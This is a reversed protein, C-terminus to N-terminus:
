DFHGASKNFLRKIGPAVYGTYQMDQAIGLLADLRAHPDRIAETIQIAKLYQKDHIYYDAVKLYVRSLSDAQCLAKVAPFVEEQQGNKIGQIMIRALADEKLYANDIERSIEFAAKLDKLKAYSIAIYALAQSRDFPLKIAEATALAIKYNGERAYSIAIQAQAESRFFVTKVADATDRAKQYDGIKAYGIAAQTLVENKFYGPKKGKASIVARDFMERAPDPLDLSLYKKGTSLFMKADKAPYKLLLSDWLSDWKANDAVANIEYFYVQPILKRTESSSQQIIKRLLPTQAYMKKEKFEDILRCLAVSQSFPDDIAGALQMAKEYRAQQIYFNVIKVYADSRSDKFEIDGALEIAKGADNLKIHEEILESLLIAKTLPDNTNQAIKLAQALVDRAKEPEGVKLYAASLKILAEAKSFPEKIEEILCLIRTLPAQPSSDKLDSATRGGSLGAAAYVARNFVLCFIFLSIYCCFATIKYSYEKM